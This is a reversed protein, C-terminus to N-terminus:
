ARRRPLRNQFARGDAPAFAHGGAALAHAGDQTDHQVARAGSLRLDRLATGQAAALAFFCTARRLLRFYRLSAVLNLGAILLIRAFRAVYAEYKKSTVRHALERLPGRRATQVARHMAENCAENCQEVDEM